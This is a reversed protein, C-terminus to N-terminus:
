RSKKEQEGSGMCIIITFIGMVEGIAWSIPIWYWPVMNERREIREVQFADGNHLARM